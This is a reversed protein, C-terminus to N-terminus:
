YRRGAELNTIRLQSSLRDLRQTIAAEDRDSLENQRDRRMYQESRRIASLDRLARNSDSRSLNGENSASRIYRELWAERAAIERPM